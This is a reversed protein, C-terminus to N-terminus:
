IYDPDQGKSQSNGEFMNHESQYKADGYDSNGESLLM